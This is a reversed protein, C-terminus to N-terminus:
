FAIRATVQGINVRYDSFTVNSTRQERQLSALLTMFRGPRYRVVTSVSQVRDSRYSMTGLTMAPDGLHNRISFEYMGSLNVKPSVDLSPRISFGKTLVFNTRIDEAASIEWRAIAALSSKGTPKWDYSTRFTTGSYDRQPLQKYSRRVQEVRANLHSKETPVWNIFAGIGYQSYTNDYLNGLLLQRYPYDGHETSLSLGVQNATPLGYSVQFNANRINVNNERRVAVGNTQKMDAVAVEFGLRATLQYAGRAFTQQTKLPNVIRGQTSAFSALAYSEAYGVDGNLHDGAQWLWSARADRSTFNLDTYRTYRTITKALNAQFRQRSVPMNLDVGFTTSLYTDGREASGISTAPNLYRSLRFVNNDVVATESAYVELMDNWLAYANSAPFIMGAAIIIAACGMANGTGCPPRLGRESGGRLKTM